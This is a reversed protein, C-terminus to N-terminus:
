KKRTAKQPIELLSKLKKINEAQAPDNAINTNELPDSQHDYLMTSLVKGKRVYESYRYRDTRISEGIGYRSYATDNSATNPAKLIKAFSTGEATKPIPVGTLECLTPFIDVSETLAASSAGAAHDPVQLILPIHLSSEFVSHKCWYTHDGLNWGHDGWLVIITNDTLKLRDLEALVKGVQADTYSVCAYYGRILELAKEKPMAGKKPIDSYQRLEGWSHGSEKPANKPINYNDPLKISDEPYLDWYKKPASFPLHPKLFGVALFFPQDKKKALRQLESVAKDAIMGDKYRNDPVDASETSPGREEKKVVTNLHNPGKPFWPTKTWGDISDKRNHYIKGLSITEYGHEKFQGNMTTAWPVQEQAVATHKLFRNPTPRVSTFLSARSAGCTAVSTYAKTFQVGRSALKDIHPSQIHKAGYCNLEPRLDDVAIFLINPKEASHAIPVGLAVFTSICIARLMLDNM